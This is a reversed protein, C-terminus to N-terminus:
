EQLIFIFSYINIDLIFSFLLFLTFAYYCARGSEDISQPLNITLANRSLTSKTSVPIEGHYFGQVQGWRRAAWSTARELGFCPNSNGQPCQNKEAGRGKEPM